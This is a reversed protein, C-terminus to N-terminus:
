MLCDRGSDIGLQKIRANLGDMQLLEEVSKHMRYCWFHHPDSPINIREDAYNYRRQEGDISMWDQFPLIVLMAPSYLHRM